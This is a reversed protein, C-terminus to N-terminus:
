LNNAIKLILESIKQSFIKQNQEYDFVSENKNFLSDSVVKISVIEIKFLNSVACLSALEMDILNINKIDLFNNYNQKSIFSDSTGVICDLNDFNIFEKLKDSYEVSTSFLKPNSRMQNLEYGFSSLDVDLFQSYKVLCTQLININSDACGCSGINIILDIKKLDCIAKTLLISSNVKGVNSFIFAFNDNSKLFYYNSNNIVRLYFNSLFDKQIEEDLAVVFLKM